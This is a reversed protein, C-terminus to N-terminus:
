RNSLNSLKLFSGNGGHFHLQHSGAPQERLDDPLESLFFSSEHYSERICAAATRSRMAWNTAGFTLIGCTIDAFNEVAEATFAPRLALTVTENSSKFPYLILRSGVMVSETVGTGPTFSSFASM